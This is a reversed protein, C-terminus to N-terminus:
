FIEQAVICALDAHQEAVDAIEIFDDLLALATHNLDHVFNEAGEVIDAFCVADLLDLGHALRVHSSSAQLEDFFLDFRIERVAMKDQPCDIHGLLHDFKCLPIGVSCSFMQFGLNSDVVSTTNESHKPVM